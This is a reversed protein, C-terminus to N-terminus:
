LEDGPVPPVDPVAALADAFAQADYDKAINAFFERTEQRVIENSAATVLFQNLSVGEARAREKARGHVSQPLRVQLAQSAKKAISARGIGGSKSARARSVGAQSTSAKPVAGKHADAKSAMGRQPKMANRSASRDARKPNM